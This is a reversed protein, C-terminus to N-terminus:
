GRVGDLAGSKIGHLLAALAAGSASLIVEPDDSERLRVRGGAGAAINLCNGAESSFSSKQWRSVPM